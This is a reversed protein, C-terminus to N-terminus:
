SAVQYPYIENLQRISRSTHNCPLPWHSGRLQCLWGQALEARITYVDFVVVSVLLNFQVEFSKTKAPCSYKIIHLLLSPCSSDACKSVQNRLQHPCHVQSAGGLIIDM